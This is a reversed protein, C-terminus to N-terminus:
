QKVKRQKRSAPLTQDAKPAAAPDAKPDAPRVLPLTLEFRAGSLSQSSVLDLRGGMTEMFQRSIALGLGLGEIDSRTSVFADFLGERLEEPVGTGNDEVALLAVGSGGITDSSHASDMNTNRSQSSIVIHPADHDKAALWANVLLNYLVQELRVAGAVVRVDPDAQVVLAQAAAPFRSTLGDCAAEIVPGMTVPKVEQSRGTVFSRLNGVIRSVRDTQAVIRDLNEQAREPKQREIFAGANEAYNRIAGLPQNIEHSISAAVQGLLALKGAQVVSAQADELARTREAVKVELLRAQEEQQRATQLLALRRAYLQSILLAFAFALAALGLAGGAWERASLARGPRAVMEMSLDPLALTQSTAGFGERGNAYLVRGQPDLLRIEDTSLDLPSTAEGLDFRSVAVGIVTRNKFVPAAFLYDSGILARGLSGAQAFAVAQIWAAHDVDVAAHAPELLIPAGQASLVMLANIDTLAYLQKALRKGAGNTPESVLKIVGPHRATLVAGQRHKELNGRFSAVQVKLSLQLRDQQAQELARRDISATAIFVVLGLLLSFLFGFPMLVVNM